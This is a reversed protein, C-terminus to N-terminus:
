ILRVGIVTIDDSQIYGKAFDKISEELKDVFVQVDDTGSEIIVKLLRDKGYLEDSKSKAETVGDTYFVLLDGSELQIEEEQTVKDFLAGAMVGLAMGKPMLIDCEGTKGHFLITPPHGARGYMLKRNKVDLIGYFISVFTGKKMDKVLLDNAKSLVNAASLNGVAQSRVVSRIMAMLIAAPVGKGSVDGVVIGIKDQDVDIFDYYDGGVEKAAQYIVGIKATELEPCKEPLLAHQIQRAIELEQEFKEKEVMEEQAKKLRGIMQSFTSTLVGIEDKGIVSIKYDLDGRGIAEAGLTLLHVPKTITRSTSLALIMALAIGACSFLLMDRTTIKRMTSIIEVDIAAALAGVVNNDYDAIPYYKTIYSKEGIRTLKIIDTKSQSLKEEIEASLQEGLLRRDQQDRINTTIIAGQQFIASNIMGEKELRDVILFNNNIVAGAMVIGVLKESFFIPAAAKIVMASELRSDILQVKWFLGEKELEDKGIIEVVGGVIEQDTIVKQVLKDSSLSDGKLKPNSARVVVKGFPDTITIFEYINKKLMKETYEALQPNLGLSTAIQVANDKSISEAFHRMDELKTEFSTRVLTLDSGAKTRAQRNIYGVLQNISYAAAISMPVVIIVVCIAILKAKVSYFLPRKQTAM